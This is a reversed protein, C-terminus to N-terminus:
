FKRLFQGIYAWIYICMESGVYSLRGGYAAEQQTIFPIIFS